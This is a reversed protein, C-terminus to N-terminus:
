AQFGTSTGAPRLTRLSKRSENMSRLLSQALLASEIRCIPLSVTARPSLHSTGTTNSSSCSFPQRSSSEKAEDADQIDLCPESDVALRERSTETHAATSRGISSAESQVRRASLRQKSQSSRPATDTDADHGDPMEAGVVPMTSIIRKQRMNPGIRSNRQITWTKLQPSM